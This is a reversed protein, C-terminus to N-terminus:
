QLLGQLYPQGYCILSMVVGGICGKLVSLLKRKKTDERYVCFTVACAFFLFILLYDM